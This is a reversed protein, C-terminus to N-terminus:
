RACSAHAAGVHQRGAQLGRAQADSAFAEPVWMAKMGFAPERVEDGPVNPRPGDGIIVLVDGIRLEESAVVTGHIRIQYSKPPSRSITPSSSRRCSSATNGPSSAACRASATRSSATRRRAARGRAAQRPVARDRGTELQEKVSNRAEEEARREAEGAKRRGGAVRMRERRRASHRLGVFAM